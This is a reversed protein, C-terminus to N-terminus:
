KVKSLLALKFKSSVGRLKTIQRVNLTVSPLSRTYQRKAVVPTTKGSKKAAKRTSTKGLFTSVNAATYNKGATIRYGETTLTQAIKSASFGKGSLEAIRQKANPRM